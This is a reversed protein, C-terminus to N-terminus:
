RKERRKRPQRNALGSPGVLEALIVVDGISAPATIVSSRSAACHGKQCHDGLAPFLLVHEHVLVELIAACPQAFGAAQFDLPDQELRRQLVAHNVHM